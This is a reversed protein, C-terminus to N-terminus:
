QTRRSCVHSASIDHNRRPGLLKLTREEPPSHEGLQDAGEQVDEQAAPGAGTPQVSWRTDDLEGERGPQGDRRDDPAQAVHAASVDVRRHCPWLEDRTPDAERTRDQEKERLADAGDSSCGRQLRDRRRVRVADEADVREVRIDGRPM